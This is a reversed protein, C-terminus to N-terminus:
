TNYIIYIDFPQIYGEQQMAYCYNNGFALAFNDYRSWEFDYVDHVYFMISYGNSQKIFTASYNIHGLGAVLDLEDIGSQFYYNGTITGTSLNKALINREFSSFVQRHVRQNFYVMKTLQSNKDHSLSSPKITSNEPVIANEMFGATYICGKALVLAIGAKYAALATNYKMSRRPPAIMNVKLASKENSAREDVKSVSLMAESMIQDVSEGEKLDATVCAEKIQELYTKANPNEKEFEDIRQQTDISIEKPNTLKSSGGEIGKAFVNCPLLTLLLFGALVHTIVRKM